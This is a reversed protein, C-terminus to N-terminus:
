ECPYVTVLGRMLIHSVFEDGDLQELNDLMADILLYYFELSPDQSHCFLPKGFQKKAELSALEMGYGLGLIHADLWEPRHEEGLAHAAQLYEQVTLVANATGSFSIMFAFIIFGKKM